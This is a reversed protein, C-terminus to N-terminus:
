FNGFVKREEETEKKHPYGYLCHLVIYNIWWINFQAQLVIAVYLARLVVGQRLIMIGEM